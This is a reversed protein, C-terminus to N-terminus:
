GRAGRLSTPLRVLTGVNCAYKQRLLDDVTCFRAGRKRAAHALRPIAEIGKTHSDHLVVIGGKGARMLGLVRRIVKKADYDQRWDGSEIQWLVLVGSRKDIVQCQRAIRAARSPGRSFWPSGYPPRHYILPYEYGLAENVADQTRRYETEIEYSKLKGLDPHSYTHNGITHGEEVMRIIVERNRRVRRGCVFFTAKMDIKKLIRLARATLKPRPGDDFSLAFHGPFNDKLLISAVAENM